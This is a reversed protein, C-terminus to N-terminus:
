LVLADGAVREGDALEASHTAPDLAVVEALQVDVNENDRFLKRLSYAIDSPALQSTAVQYLLPQFQHYNNRDLLTVQVDHRALRRACGVGAFGGGVIVVHARGNTGHPSM